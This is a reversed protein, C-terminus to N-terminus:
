KMPCNSINAPFVRFFSHFPPVYNVSIKTGCLFALNEWPSKLINVRTGLFITLGIVAPFSVAQYKRGRKKFFKGKFQTYCVSRFNRELM